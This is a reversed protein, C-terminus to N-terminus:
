KEAGDLQHIRSIRYNDGQKELEFNVGQGVSLGELSVGEVTIFDMQMSPWGLDPIPDHELNLMGHGPMISKIVGFGRITVPKM